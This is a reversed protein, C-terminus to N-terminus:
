RSVDAISVRGTLWDVGVALRKSGDALVISGGSSSGDPHFRISGVTPAVREAAVTLLEIDISDPLQRLVANGIRYQRHAIDLDLAVGENRTIAESRALRLQGALEAARAGLNLGRSWPPKYGAVSALAIGLVALVVIMEILTFGAASDTDHTTVRIKSRSTM